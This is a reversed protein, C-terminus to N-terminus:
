ANPPRRDHGNGHRWHRQFEGTINVAAVQFSGGGTISLATSSNSDIFAPREFPHGCRRGPRQRSWPGGSRALRHQRQIAGLCRPCRRPCPCLALGISLRQQLLPRASPHHPGRRLRGAGRLPRIGAPHQRRGHVGRWRQCLRQRSAIAFASSAASGDSDIGINSPYDRYLECAGALAAADAIAQARTREAQLLGGDIVLAVLSLIVILCVAFMVLVMGRRSRDRDPFWM